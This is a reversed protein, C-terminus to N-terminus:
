GSRPSCARWAAAPSCRRRDDRQREDLVFGNAMSRTSRRSATSSAARTRARRRLGARRRAPHLLRARRHLGRHRLHRPVAAGEQHALVVLLSSRCCTSRRSPSCRTSRTAHSRRTSRARRRHRETFGSCSSSASRSASRRARGDLADGPHARRDHRRRRPEPRAGDDGVAAVDQRGHLRGLHHRRRRDDHVRRPDTGHRHLRRRPDRGDDVLQRDGHRRARLDARGRRLLDGAPAARHRLRRGDPDDRGHEVHRDPRRRRPPHLDRGDGLQRRRHRRRQDRGVTHGNKLAVLGAVLASAFLAVQLPGDTAGIGFLVITLSLLVVLTVMPILADLSARRGRTGAAREAAEVAATVDSLRPRRVVRGHAPSPRGATTATRRRPRLRDPRRHRARRVVALVWRVLSSTRRGHRQRRLDPRAALPCTM